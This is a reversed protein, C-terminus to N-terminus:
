AGSQMLTLSMVFTKTKAWVFFTSLTDAVLSQAAFREVGALTLKNPCTLWSMVFGVFHIHAWCGGLRILIKATRM